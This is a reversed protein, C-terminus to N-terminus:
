GTLTKQLNSKMEIGTIKFVTKWSRRIIPPMEPNIAYQDAIFQRTKKDNPYGSGFDGYRERLMGVLRDRTTKAIISAAAVAPYIDEAHHVSIVKVDNGLGSVIRRRFRECNIDVSGVQVVEPILCNIIKAMVEAELLNINRSKRVWDIDCAEIVEVHHAEALEKIPMVLRERKKSSLKKSDKVGIDLLKKINEERMLVGAIVMPGIAPGRGAEDIGAIRNM